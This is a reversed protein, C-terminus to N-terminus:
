GLRDIVDAAARRGSLLAGHVTSHYDPETAEGAFFVVDDIPQGLAKRMKRTVGVSNASYSGLALPDRSWQSTLAAVPRPLTAGFMDRLAPLAADIVEDPSAAEISRAYDDSNFGLLVPAGLKGLSLWQSWPSGGPGLYGHWDVDQDWYIDDFRLFSKSLVGMEITDIATQAAADLGDIRISGAKLVGVPVTVIVADATRVTSGMTVEVGGAKPRVGTVATSLSIALGDGLPDIVGSFGQPFLVDLGDFYRGEESTRASLREPNLGWESGFAGELYFSLDAQEAASLDAREVVEAIAQAVSVDPGSAPTDKLARRVLKHWRSYDSEKLGAQVLVPAVYEVYSDYDTSVMTADVAHALETVPNGKPGHIWSAGLDIPLGAWAETTFVRGGIRDRADLVEVSIGEDALARAAALGAVGAGVVLVRPQGNNVGAGKRLDGSLEGCGVLGGLGAGGGVAAATALLRRRSLLPRTRGSKPLM